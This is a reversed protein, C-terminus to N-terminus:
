IFVDARRMTRSERIRLDFGGMTPHECRQSRSRTGNEPRADQMSTHTRVGIASVRCIRKGLLAAGDITESSVDNEEGVEEEVKKKEEIFM